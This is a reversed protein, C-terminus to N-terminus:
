AFNFLAATESQEREPPATGRSLDSLLGGSVYIEEIGTRTLTYPYFRLSAMELGPSGMLVGEDNNFCDTIALPLPSSGLMDLNRYFTVETPTITITLLFMEELPVPASRNLGVTIEKETITEGPPVLAFFEHGAFRVEPGSDKDLYIGWCSLDSGYGSVIPRKRLLYGRVFQTKPKVWVTWTYEPVLLTFVPGFIPRTFRRTAGLLQMSSTGRAMTPSTKFYQPSLLFFKKSKESVTPMLVEHFEQRTKINRLAEFNLSADLSTFIGRQVEVSTSLILAAWFM